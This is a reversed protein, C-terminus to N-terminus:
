KTQGGVGFQLRDGKWVHENSILIPAEDPSTRRLELSLLKGNAETPSLELCLYDFLAREHVAVVIQRQASRGISRLLSALQVVHVDDMNQVPDDLVLVRHRPQEILHLALFLSLAATSVNGSSAVAAFQSFPEGSSARGEITTRIQGRESTPEGLWPQFREHKALRRFFDRWLSNLTDNFVQDLLKKKANTAAKALDKGEQILGRMKQILVTAREHQQRITALDKDTQELAHGAVKAESLANRLRTAGALQREAKDIASALHTTILVRAQAPTSEAPVEMGIDNAIRIFEGEAVVRQQRRAGLMSLESRFGAISLELRSLTQRDPEASSYDGILSALEQRLAFRSEIVPHERAVQEELAVIRRNLDGNELELAARQAEQEELAQADAGISAVEMAIRESLSGANLESYNRKCVPCDEGHVHQSLAVLLAALRQRGAIDQRVSPARITLATVVEASRVRLNSLEASMATIRRADGELRERTEGLIVLVSLFTSALNDSEQPRLEVEALAARARQLLGKLREHLTVREAEALEFQQQVRAYASPDEADGLLGLSSQLRGEAHRLKQLHTATDRGDANEDMAKLREEVGSRDWPAGPAPDSVEGSVQQLKTLATHWAAVLAPRRILIEAVRAATNAETERAERLAPVSKEIRTINGAEHLGSTLNELLDLGLLERVFRVLPQEPQEKDSAQYNELLRSLSSQSLYCRDLFFAREETPLTFTSRPSGGRTSVSHTIERKEGNADRYRITASSDETAGLHKLCRPYDADFPRLDCVDGTLAFELGALLSTKATGNTGHILIVDADLPIIQEGRFARFATLRLELLRAIM